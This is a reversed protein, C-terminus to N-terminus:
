TADALAGVQRYELPDATTANVPVKSWTVSFLPALDAYIESLATPQFDIVDLADNKAAETCYIHEAPALTAITATRPLAASIYDHAVVAAIDTDIGIRAAVVLTPNARAFKDLEEQCMMAARIARTTDDFVMICGNGLSHIERGQFRHLVETVVTKHTRIVRQRNEPDVTVGPPPVAVSTTVFTVLEPARCLDDQIRWFGLAEPLASIEVFGTQILHAMARYGADIPARFHPVQAFTNANAAFSEASRKTLGLDVLMAALIHRGRAQSMMGRKVLEGSGGAVFLNVGFQMFTSLEEDLSAAAANVAQVFLEATPDKLPRAAAAAPAHPEAAAATVPSKSPAPAAAPEGEAFIPDFEKLREELIAGWDDPNLRKKRPPSKERAAAARRKQVADEKRRQVYDFVLYACLTVVLFIFFLASGYETRELQLNSSKQLWLLVVAFFVTAFLGAIVANLGIALTRTFAYAAKADSEYSPSEDDSVSATVGFLRRKRVRARRCAFINKTFKGNLQVSRTPTNM